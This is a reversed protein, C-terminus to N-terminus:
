GRSSPSWASPFMAVPHRARDRIRLQVNSRPDCFEFSTERDDLLDASRERSLGVQACYGLERAFAQVVQKRFGVEEDREIVFRAVHDRKRVFPALALAKVGIRNLRGRADRRADHLLSLDEM